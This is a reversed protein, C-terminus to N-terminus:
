RRLKALNKPNDLTNVVINNDSIKLLIANITNDKSYQLEIEERIKDLDYKTGIYTVEIYYEKPFLGSIDFLGENDPAATEVVNGDLDKLEIILDNYFEVKEDETLNLNKDLEVNGSLTLMPKIPIYADVTSSFGSKIKIKNNGLTYSPKKITVDTDYLVGNGIGYIMGEGYKDTVVTKDGIKVEIGSVKEEGEDLVNNNNQDIFTIVKVRSNDMTNLDLTPNKLDIIKDIGIRHNQAGDDSFNTDIKLWNDLKVSFKFTLREKDKKSYALETSFDIFGGLNNNYLTIRSEYENGNKTWVNELRGTLSEWGSYYVGARYENNRSDNMDLSTGASFLFKNWTYDTDLTIQKLKEDEKNRYRKIEYRYGVDVNPLIDYKLDIKDTNKDDYFKGFEEHEYILKWKSYNFQNLYKYSYKKSLSINRMENDIEKYHSYNDLSKVGSINFVYSLANYTGGYVLDLKANNLYKAKSKIKGNHYEDIEEIDRSYGFGLTLNNTFGYFVDIDSRYKNYQSDENVSIKYEFQNRQQLNYDRITKVEKEYIKGDPEYIKLVYTRDTRILPNDFEVVGNDDDRIEIPTGMYLLEVRSGLPVTEKIVVQGGATEYFAKDKYFFLGWERNNGNRRNEIELNHEKWIDNYELRVDNLKNEKLDYDATIEGYLLGGQYAINGDWSSKYSKEGSKKEFNEGLQIHAYGLDFLKRQSNYIIEQENNKKLLKDKSIDLLQKIEKPTDFSLYMRVLLEEEDITLTSLFLESFKNSEMFIENDKIFIDNNNKLPIKIEKLSSGLYLIFENKNEVYNTFGICRLFNKLAFFHQGNKTYVKYSRSVLKANINLDYMNENLKNTSNIESSLINFEEESILNQSRLNLLEEMTVDSAYGRFFNLVFLLILYKVYKYRM